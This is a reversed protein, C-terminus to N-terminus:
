AGLLPQDFEYLAMNIEVINYNRQEIFFRIILDFKSSNTLAYGARGILDRTGELDLELAIALAIATPKTPNYHPNNRIKSFHQKSLNAKKYIHSDKKGTKDILRLLTETFGADERRLMEELTLSPLPAEGPCASGVSMDDFPLCKEGEPETRLLRRSAMPRAYREQLCTAINEDIFSAVHSFLKRSLLYSDRDLVVLTIDLEQEMLFSSFVQIAIELAIDKPFGHNGSAILPFAISRCGHELALQLAAEYCACLTRKEGLLGGRWRPGVAHIVYKAPLDFGQTVAASGYPIDGIAQRAELLRPGAKRHVRADTGSGVIPRHNATNVIADVQMLAIDNRVIQFPM